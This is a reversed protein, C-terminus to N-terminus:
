KDVEMLEPNDHINGVVEACDWDNGSLTSWTGANEGVWGVRPFFMVEFVQEDLVHHINRDCLCIDGEFIRKGNIDTLGTFQGVTEPNVEVMHCCDLLGGIDLGCNVQEQEFIYTELENRWDTYSVFFGYVWEGNDISKGRFLIERM